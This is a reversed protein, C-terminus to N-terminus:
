REVGEEVVFHRLIDSVEVYERVLSYFEKDKQPEEKRITKLIKEHLGRSWGEINRDSFVESYIVEGLICERGKIHDKERVQQRFDSGWSLMPDIKQRMEDESEKELEFVTSSGIKKLVWSPSSAVSESVKYDIHSLIRAYCLAIQTPPYDRIKMLYYCYTKIIRGWIYVLAREDDSLIGTDPIDGMDDPGADEERKNDPYYRRNKEKNVKDEFDKINNKLAQRIYGGVNEIYKGDRDSKRLIETLTDQILGTSDFEVDEKYLCINYIKGSVYKKFFAVTFVLFDDLDEKKGTAFYKDYKDQLKKSEEITKEHQESSKLLQDIVEPRTLRDDRDSLSRIIDKIDRGEEKGIIM